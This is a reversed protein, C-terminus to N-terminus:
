YQIDKIFIWITSDVVGSKLRQLEQPSHSSKLHEM